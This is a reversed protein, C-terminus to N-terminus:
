RAGSTWQIGLRTVIKQKQAYSTKIKPLIKNDNLHEFFADDDASTDSTRNIPMRCACVCM